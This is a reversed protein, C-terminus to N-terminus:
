FLPYLFPSVASSSLMALLGMVLLIIAIPLLWWKKNHKLFELFEVILTNRKERALMEFKINKSAM